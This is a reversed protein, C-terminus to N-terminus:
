LFGGEFAVDLQALIIETKDRWTSGPPPDSKVRPVREGYTNVLDQIYEAHQNGAAVNVESLGRSAAGTVPTTLVPLGAARYEYTKIVDGGVEGDGVRHPVWGVDFTELLEPVSAYHVDGLLSINPEARLPALYEKDLIPGAFVFNVHPLAHVTEIILDLDLRFGIKGVYGVTLPGSAVSAVSFREPDCGNPLLVVDNRGYRRALEATGEANATVSDALRFAEGYARDVERRMGSFAEHITWDDLLDLNTRRKGNFPSASRSALSAFPNWVIAPTQIYRDPIARYYEASKHWWLRRDRLDPIKLVGRAVSVTGPAMNRPITKGRLGFPDPRSVVATSGDGLLRGCWEIVHGDRTRYGERELKRQGHMPYALVRADQPWADRLQIEVNTEIYLSPGRSTM